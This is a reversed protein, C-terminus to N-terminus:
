SPLIPAAPGCIGEDRRARHLLQAILNGQSGSAVLLGAAMGMREAALEELRRVTPDEGYVDDGVEARYMAERMAATPKTVTDSRLDIIASVAGTGKEAPGHM